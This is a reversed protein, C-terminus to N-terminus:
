TEFLSVERDVHFHLHGKGGHGGGEVRRGVGMLWLTDLAEVISLGLHPGKKIPFSSNGGSVPKIEDKGWAHERYQDWAWAMEAKVDAGLAAWDRRPAARAALPAALAGGILSRRSVQM